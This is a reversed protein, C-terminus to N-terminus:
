RKEKTLICAKYALTNVKYLQNFMTKRCKHSYLLNLRLFKIEEEEIQNLNKDRELKKLKSNSEVLKKKLESNETDIRVRIEDDIAKQKRLVEFSEKQSTITEIQKNSVELQQKNSQDVTIKKNSSVKVYKLQTFDKYFNVLIDENNLDIEKNIKGIPIGSNFVSGAGSTVVLLDKNNSKINETNLYQLTGNQKGTGSMIAQIGIPEISVPVKSNIDSVLLVRSTLYNVEVVKGILYIDDLVIMGIKIGNKSGKNIVISRLFPSRKDILVKAFTESSKVFYDDIVRKLQINEFIIIQKSLDKAKLKELEIKVDKYEGYHEYHDVINNYSKKILNEPVTVVFSATYIVDRILIKTYNIIKFNFNGLTIFIISFLILSLISYRQQTSKKLFASRVAIVFDDRSREM